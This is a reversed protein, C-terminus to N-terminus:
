CISSSSRRRWRRSRASAFRRAADVRRARANRLHHNRGVARKPTQRAVLRVGRRDRRM